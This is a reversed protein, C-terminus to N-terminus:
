KCAKDTIDEQLMKISESKFPTKYDTQFSSLVEVLKEIVAERESERKKQLLKEKLWVVSIIVENRKFSFM